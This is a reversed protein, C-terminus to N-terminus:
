KRSDIINSFFSINKSIELKDTMTKIAFFVIISIVILGIFILAKKNLAFDM